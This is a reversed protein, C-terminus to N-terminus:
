ILDLCGEIKRPTSQSNQHFLFLFLFKFLSIHSGSCPCTSALNSCKWKRVNKSPINPLTLLLFLLLPISVILLHATSCLIAISFHLWDLPLVLDVYALLWAFLAPFFSLWAVLQSLLIILLHVFCWYLLEMFNASACLLLSAISALWSIWCSTTAWKCDYVFPLLLDHATGQTTRQQAILASTSWVLCDLLLVTYQLAVCDALLCLLFFAIFAM